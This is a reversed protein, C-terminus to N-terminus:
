LIMPQSRVPPFARLTYCSYWTNGPSSAPGLRLVLCLHFDGGDGPVGATQPRLNFPTFSLVHCTLLQSIQLSCASGIPILPSRNPWDCAASDVQPHQPDRPQTQVSLFDQHQEKRTRERRGEETTDKHTDAPFLCTTFLTQIELHTDNDLILLIQTQSM